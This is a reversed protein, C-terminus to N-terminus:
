FLMCGRVEQKSGGLHIAASFVPGAALCDSETFLGSWGFRSESPFVVEPKNRGRYFHDSPVLAAECLRFAYIFWTLSDAYPGLVIM